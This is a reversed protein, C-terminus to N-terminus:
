GCSQIELPTLVLCLIVTHTIALLCRWSKEGFCFKRKKGFSKKVNMSTCKIWKLVKVSAEDKKSEEAHLKEKEPDHENM